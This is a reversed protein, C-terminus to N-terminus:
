MQYPLGYHSCYPWKYSRVHTNLMEHPQGAYLIETAYTEFCLEKQSNSYLIHMREKKIEHEPCPYTSHGLYDIAIREQYKEPVKYDSQKYVLNHYSRGLKVIEDENCLKGKDRCEDMSYLIVLPAAQLLFNHLKDHLGSLANGVYESHVGGSIQAASYLGMAALQANPM